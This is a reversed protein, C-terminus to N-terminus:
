PGGGGREKGEGRPTGSLYTWIARRVGAWNRSRKCEGHPQSKEARECTKKAYGEKHSGIVKRGGEDSKRGVGSSENLLEEGVGKGKRGKQAGARPFNEKADLGGSRGNFCSEGGTKKGVILGSTL